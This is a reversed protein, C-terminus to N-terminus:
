CCTERFNPMAGRGLTAAPTPAKKPPRHIRTPRRNRKTRAPGPSITAKPKGSGDNLYGRIMQHPDSRVAPQQWSVSFTVREAASLNRLNHGIEALTEVLQEILQKQTPAPHSAAERGALYVDMQGDGDYDTYVKGDDFKVGAEHCSSCMAQEFVNAKDDGALRQRTREWRSPPRPKEAQGAKKTM